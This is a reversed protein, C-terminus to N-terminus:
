IAAYVHTTAFPAPRLPGRLCHANFTAKFCMRFCNLAAPCSRTRLFEQKLSQCMTEPCLAPDQIYRMSDALGQHKNGNRTFSSIRRIHLGVQKGSLVAGSSRCSVYVFPCSRCSLTCYPHAFSSFSILFLLPLSSPTHAQTFTCSKESCLNLSHETCHIWQADPLTTTLLGGKKQM